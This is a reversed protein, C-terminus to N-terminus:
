LIEEDPAAAAALAVAARGALARVASNRFARYPDIHDANIFLGRLAEPDPEIFEDPDPLTDEINVEVSLTGITVSTNVRIETM